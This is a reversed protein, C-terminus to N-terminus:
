CRGMLRVVNKVTERLWDAAHPKMKEFEMPMRTCAFVAKAGEKCLADSVAAGGDVAGSIVIAKKGLAKARRIVALPLKGSLTQTDSRGEGTFIIGAGAALRDFDTFGLALEAGRRLAACDTGRMKQSAANLYAFLGASIGGAAGGGRLESVDIKTHLATVSAFNRLGADLRGVMEADAGKQPAYVYAAGNEGYLLNNVDCAVSLTFDYSRMFEELEDTEVAAIKILNGGCPELLNGGVDYFRVGLAALAGTGGDNTASGGICLMIRKAGECAALRIIEGVGYTSTREPDPTLTKDARVQEIGCIMAMEIVASGDALKYYGSKMRRGFADAADAERYRSGAGALVAGTGEGGDALPLMIVDSDPLVSLIGERVVSCVEIGSLSEKFSDFALLFVM